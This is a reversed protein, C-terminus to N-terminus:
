CGALGVVSIVGVVTVVLEVVEAVVSEILPLALKRANVAVSRSAAAALWSNMIWEM